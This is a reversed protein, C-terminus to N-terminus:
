MIQHRRLEIIEMRHNAEPHKSSPGETLIALDGTLDHSEIWRKIYANWDEPHEPVHVPHVGFSFVLNQCTREFTSVAVIWVPMRFFSLNRPTTGSHTPAFIAAPSAYELSAEVAIAILHAPKIRNSIDIGQYLERVTVPRRQRDVEGAIKALMEVADVPYKGMASEGSLMVCDTGDLLANSVDTAEARTPRRNETMSELMQTATIVPKARRNAQRMLNKQIIAIREIPVEVGLDGRAIMIGDAVDLIDDMHSLANSREIKAIIFPHYGLADAAQRVARIDAGTEVFSQSVADIGEEAAFKLCERDRETFASIGLDIGPLNLGKRSRLEGGVAVRCFVENGKVSSVDLQIIGDNLFLTDGTRVAQPLREFTVSAKGSDGVVTDTTLIFVDGPKLEVPEQALQGIRMKPGPLDAMIAVRKEAARAASRLNKIVVRHRDFDGHSFNLRAINMGARMMKEMVAPSESAPGITCVIKTKHLPLKM